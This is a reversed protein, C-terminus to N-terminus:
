NRIKSSIDSISRMNLRSDGGKSPQQSQDVYSVPIELHFDELKDGSGGGEEETENSIGSEGECKAGERGSM